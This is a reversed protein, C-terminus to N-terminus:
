SIKSAHVLIKSVTGSGSIKLYKVGSPFSFIAGSGSALTTATTGATLNTGLFAVFNLASNPEDSSAGQVAGGDNSALFNITESNTVIQATVYNYSGIDLIVSDSNNNFQTTVDFVQSVM